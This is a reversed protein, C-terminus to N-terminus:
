CIKALLAWNIACGELSRNCAYFLLVLCLWTTVSDHQSLTMNHYLWTAASDHQSLTMNHCPEMIAAANGRQIAIGIRRRFVNFVLCIAMPQFNYRTSAAALSKLRPSKLTMLRGLSLSTCTPSQWPICRTVLHCFLTVRWISRFIYGQHRM